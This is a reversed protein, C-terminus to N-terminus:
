RFSLDLIAEEVAREMWGMEALLRSRSGYGGTTRRAGAQENHTACIWRATHTSTHNLAASSCIPPHQRWYRLSLVGSLAVSSVRLTANRGGAEELTSQARLRRSVVVQCCIRIMYWARTSRNSSSLALGPLLQGGRISSTGM